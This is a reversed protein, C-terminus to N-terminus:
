LSTVPPEKSETFNAPVVPNVYVKEVVKVAFSVDPVRVMVGLMLGIVKLTGPLDIGTSRPSVKSIVPVAFSTSIVVERLLIIKPRGLATVTVESEAVEREPPLKDTDPVEVRPFTVEDPVMVPAFMLAVELEVRAEALAVESTTDPVEVRPFTVEDPVMVPAFMLAVELEVRAEALAVESTTVPVEVRPFTLAEVKVAAESPTVPFRETSPSAVM